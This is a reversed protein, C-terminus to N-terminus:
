RRWMQKFEQDFWMEVVYEVGIRAKFNLYSAHKVQVWRYFDRFSPHFTTPPNDVPKSIGSENAWVGCLYRIGKEADKMLMRAAKNQHNTTRWVWILWTL